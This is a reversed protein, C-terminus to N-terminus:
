KLTLDPPIPLSSILENPPFIFVMSYFVSALSSSLLSASTYTFVVFKLTISHTEEGSHLVFGYDLSV